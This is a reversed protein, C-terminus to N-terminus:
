LSTNFAVLRNLNNYNYHHAHKIEIYNKQHSINEYDFEILKFSLSIM